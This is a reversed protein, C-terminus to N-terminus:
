RFVTRMVVQDSMEFMMNLAAKDAAPINGGIQEGIQRRIPKRLDPVRKDKVYPPKFVNTQYRRSEVLKGAVLPSCFPAMRRRGVDVDIAVFETDSEIVNPFFKDLLFNQSTMLNPVVEVLTM